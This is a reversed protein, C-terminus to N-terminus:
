FMSHACLMNYAVHNIKLFMNEILKSSRNKECDVNTHELISIQRRVGTELSKSRGFRNM